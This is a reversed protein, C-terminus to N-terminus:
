EEQRLTRLNMKKKNLLISNRKKKLYDLTIIGYNMSKLLKIKKVSFLQYEKLCNILM